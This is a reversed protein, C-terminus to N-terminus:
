TSDRWGTGSSAKPRSISSVGDRASRLLVAEGKGGGDVCGGPSWLELFRM